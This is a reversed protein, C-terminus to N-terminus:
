KLGWKSFYKIASFLHIWIFRNFLAQPLILRTSERQYLHVLSIDSLYIVKWGKQKFRRCLDVDEFYLFYQEDFLGVKDLAADRVLLCAGILWDVTFNENHAWDKMLYRRNEEKGWKTKYLITHRALPTYWRPFRRCSYQLSGDLNLLKPGCIGCSPNKDMFDIMKEIVGGQLIVDPNLILSYESKIKKLGQNTAKAFGLNKNNLIIECDTNRTETLFNKSGDNSNNDIVIIKHSMEIAAKKIYNLCQELLDKQNYNVIIIKLKIMKM